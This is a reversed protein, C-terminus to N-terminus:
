GLTPLHDSMKPLPQTTARWYHNDMARALPTEHPETAYASLLPDKGAESSSFCRADLYGQMFWDELTMIRKGEADFAGDFDYTDVSVKVDVVSGPISRELQPAFRYLQVGRKSAVTAEISSLLAGDMATQLTDLFVNGFHRLLPKSWDKFGWSNHLLPTLELSIVHTAGALVAVDIPTLDLVGGDVLEQDIVETAGNVDRSFQWRKVPFAVPIASSTLAAEILPDTAEPPLQSVHLLNDTSRGATPDDIGSVKGTLDATWIGQKVLGKISAAGALAFVVMRSATLSATTLYLEPGKDPQWEQVIRATLSDAGQFADGFFQTLKARLPKHGILHDRKVLVDVLPRRLDDLWGEIKAMELGLQMEVQGFRHAFDVVDMVLRGSDEAFRLVNRSVQDILGELVDLRDKVSALLSHTAATGAASIVDGTKAALTTITDPVFLNLHDKATNLADLAAALSSLDRRLAPDPAAHAKSAALVKKAVFDAAVKPGSPLDAMTKVSGKVLHDGAILLSKFAEGLKVFGNIVEALHEGSALQVYSADSGAVQIAGKNGTWIGKWLESQRGAFLSKGGDRNWPKLLDVFLGCAVLSGASTGTLLKPQVGMPLLVQLLAEAVGAEWAGRAAGGTISIALKFGPVSQQAEKLEDAIKQLTLYEPTGRLAGPQPPPGRLSVMVEKGPQGPALRLTFRIRTETQDKGLAPLKKELFPAKPDVQEEALRQWAGAKWEETTVIPQAGQGQVNWELYIAQEAQAQLEISPKPSDASTATFSQIFPAPGARRADEDQTPLIIVANAIEEGSASRTRFWFQPYSHGPKEESM